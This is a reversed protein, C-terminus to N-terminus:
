DGKRQVYLSVLRAVMVALYLQGAVAELIALGRATEGKPVVDGYGLTALTVFSFYMGSTPSFHGSVLTEGAVVISGPWAREIAWYLVGFFVGALLYASLAACLHEASVATGRMAARVAGTAALLGVVTWLAMSMTTLADEQLWMAGLRAALAVGLLLLLLRSTRRGGVGLVAALLNLALFFQLVSDDVHLAALLPGAGLTFLLSYFLVTYRRALYADGLWQLTSTANARHESM